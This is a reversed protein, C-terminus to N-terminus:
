KTKEDIGFIKNLKNVKSFIHKEDDNISIINRIIDKNM